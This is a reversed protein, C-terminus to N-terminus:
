SDKGEAEEEVKPVERAAMEADHAHGLVTETLHLLDSRHEAARDAAQNQNESSLKHMDLHLGAKKTEADMLSAKAKMEAAPDPPPEQGAGLGAQKVEAAKAQAMILAAISKRDDAGAKTAEAQSKAQMAVLEPPPQGMASPPVFFQSPDGFGLVNEILFTDVKIPDYLSQSQMQLQKLGMGKLMRQTHSATNPDAQPVLDHDDLAKVFMETTWQVNSPKDNRLFSDPHERFVDVLLQFEQAQSAHMRKHVSNMLKTAQEVMALTTGVPADAKGEGVQLESTGGIRQGNTEMTQTLAMLAPMHQTNYPLPMIADGISMGNTKVPAGAGPAVRTLNSNQRTGFDAILYGPFNAFMGNDLMERNAATLANTTNGLIHLLGIDYFGFGPVFSYKVFTQRAQPLEEKAQNFNRVVSLVQRSTVDITVRYPVELGSEKGKWKHEYGKIDLECYCEYFERDRDEPLGPEVSVGQQSAEQRKLSDVNEPKPIDTLDVDRYVGLIQMRRVTSPKVMMKHTVRRANALDTADNSVILDNADVTESVPRMRLPCFYVKKFSTGAFGFKFLMRDTDPYYEPAEATLYHNLDTELADALAGQALPPGGNHGIAPPGNADDRVKVPGDTPLLESRANAQFRLCAELLLPHRVKSMQGELSDAGSTGPIEIELGLLKVGQTVAEIWGQRSTIDSDIGRLLDEAIRSLEMNDIRDALNAFWGTDRKAEEHDFIPKGDLSITVSGDDHDIKVVAGKDDLTFADGGGEEIEVQIDGHDNAAPPMGFATGGVLRLNPPALGAM